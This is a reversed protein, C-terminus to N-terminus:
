AHEMTSIPLRVSLHTGVASSWVATGGLAEARTRISRMGVGEEHAGGRGNDSIELRYAGEACFLALRCARAQSHRLVNTVAERVILALVREKAAPMELHECRREVDVDAAKLLSEVRDLEAYIDGSYYGHIAGRMEELSQRAIREVDGIELLARQPDTHFTRRALEAKLALSSLSHGLVDHLDKAIREREIARDRRQQEHTQRVAFTAGSGSVFIQAAVLLPFFPGQSGDFYLLWWEVGFVAAVALVVTMSWGVRGGVAPAVFAAAVPFYLGGSPRYALSGIAIVLLAVCVAAVRRRREACTLATLFLALVALLTLTTASWELWEARQQYPAWFVYALPLTWVLFGWPVRKRHTPAHSSM